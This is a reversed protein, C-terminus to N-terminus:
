WDGDTLTADLLLEDLVPTARPAFVQTALVVEISADRQRM